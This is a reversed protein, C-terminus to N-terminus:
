SCLDFKEKKKRKGDNKSRKEIILHLFWIKRKRENEMTRKEIIQHSDFKEKEKRKNKENEIVKGEGRKM